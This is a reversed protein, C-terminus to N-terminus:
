AYQDMATKVTALVTAIPTVAGSPHAQRFKTLLREAGFGQLPVPEVAAAPRRQGLGVVPCRGDARRAFRTTEITGQAPLKAEVVPLEAFGGDLALQM